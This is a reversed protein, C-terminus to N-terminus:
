AFWTDRVQNLINFSIAVSRYGCLTTDHPTPRPGCCGASRRWVSALHGFAVDSSNAGSAPWGLSLPTSSHTQRHQTLLSPCHATTGTAPPAHRLRPRMAAHCPHRPQGCPAPVCAGCPVPISIRIETPEPLYIALLPGAALPGTQMGRSVGRLARCPIRLLQSHTRAPCVPAHCTARRRIKRVGVSGSGRIETISELVDRLTRVDLRPPATPTPGLALCLALCHMASTPGLRPRTPEAACSHSSCARRRRYSASVAPVLTRLPFTHPPAPRRREADPTCTGSPQTRPLSPLPGKHPQARQARRHQLLPLSPRPLTRSGAPHAPSPKAPFTRCRQCKSAVPTESYLSPCKNRTRQVSRILETM